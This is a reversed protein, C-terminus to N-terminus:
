TTTRKADDSAGSETKTREGRWSMWLMGHVPLTAAITWGNAQWDVRLASVVLSVVAPLLAALAAREVWRVRNVGLAALLMMSVPSMLLVNENWRTATHDTLMAMFLLVGGVLVCGSSWGASLWWLMRRRGSSLSRRSALWMGGAGALGFGVSGAWWGPPRSPEVNGPTATQNLRVRERVLPRGDGLRTQTLLGGLEMPVFSTEWATLLVDTAPGSALDMGVALPANLWGVTTLRRTHWRLTQSTPTSTGQRLLAGSVAHDVVDRVRTSCNDTYYDYRYTRLGPSALRRIEATLRSVEDASLDLVFEDVTRDLDDVYFSLVASTDAVGMDYMMRGRIFNTVFGPQDFDFRGWDYCEDIGRAEHRLRIAIHGFREFILPGPGFVLVSVRPDSSTRAPPSGDSRTGEPASVDPRTAPDGRLVGAWMALFLIALRWARDM